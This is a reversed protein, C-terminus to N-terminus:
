MVVWELFCDFNPCIFATKFMDEEAWFIQNYGGNGDHLSIVQHGYADNIITKPIPRPYEDKPTARNLDIFDICVRLKGYKKEEVSVINSVWKVYHCLVIFSAEWLWNIDEKIRNYM